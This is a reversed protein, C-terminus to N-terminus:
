GEPPRRFPIFISTTSKLELFINVFSFHKCIYLINLHVNYHHLSSGTLKKLDKLGSTIDFFCPHCTLESLLYHLFPETPAHVSIYWEGIGAM